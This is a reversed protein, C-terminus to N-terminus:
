GLSSKLVKPKENMVSSKMNQRKYYDDTLKDSMSRSSLIQGLGRPTDYLHAYHILFKIISYPSQTNM